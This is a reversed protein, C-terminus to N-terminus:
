PNSKSFGITVIEHNRVPVQISKRSGTNLAEETKEIVNSKYATNYNAPPKVLLSRQDDAMNFWRIMVDGSKDAVKMSSLALNTSDWQVFSHVPPLNGEHLGTQKISWPVQYQYADQYAKYVENKGGHPYIRFSVSHEGLCQAEPTPFYGWDGLEGVSRLLTVAITNRGDRVIEYENLGLNAVTLGESDNSVDVFAQQHQSNDPNTWEESPENLRKAVEFISDAHHVNTEIDTPFLARLRHDKAQNNYSTEVNIGKSNKELTVITKITFPVKEEVRTAKRGTFWVLERQETDLLDSASAPIEWEHVIEFSAQFLTDEIVKVKAQLDKTTRAHEGNPQKYMYENGIDGTDEYICLEEFTRGSAKDTVTLSGNSEIKIKLYDNEMQNENTILSAVKKSIDQQSVQPVFAFTKFGLAPIKEAEFTVRVRRAMYPQRFKEEPLDYNFAIGLDEAKHNFENGEEDILIRDELPFGKLKEKNVGSSFYDRKVDMTISVVGTRNWGTTNYVTFPLANEGWKEFGTTDVQKSICDLSEDIIMEAVHKSKEFRTVMERHVEDVSCGCISDHPHNQMLTKWAYELLHHNYDEGQLYAFSSLPEAVKELLAQCLQNMQKIYVRASATNVLTGWGDTQQSRLEGDIVKLDKPISTSLKDVYDNFNSHIFKIDPYLNEATQIAEPLNTQIPQHDCGNLMLMHPTSAYKELSTIHQEWYNKAELEDTPVENGNCYWNAFLIGLVSSGDPSRWQMESYPSEYNDTESVTNNFGTPKVGRGFVAHEISAQSLIQPAQGINGFSDPFYGIKSVNGWQSADKMGYQLNRINAESSTLFEDQLIYWPGIHIRGEKIFRQLSEKMEPRIQLYDDLIITQGDLHFSKYNPDRELTDLLKDMLKSLLVHHKEYPLYWERDWHTHSIIHISRKEVM